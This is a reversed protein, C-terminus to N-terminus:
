AGVPDRVALRFAVTTGTADEHVTFDDSVARMLPLGRGRDGPDAPPPRWRGGDRVEIRLGDEDPTVAVRVVGGPGRGAYAHEVSNACAEGVALLLDTRITGPLDRGALWARLAARMPALEAPDAPFVRVFAGAPVPSYRLCLVVADDDRGPGDALAAMVAECVEAPPARHHARVAEELALFGEELPRRRREVLGDSYLVVLAGPELTVEDEPRSAVELACLPMSRGGELRRLHGDPDVVIPPPHGATAYRLTGADTDVIGYAVTAFSAEGPGKAFDDLLALLSGPGDAHPALARLAIRLGSMDAAAELGHGVVDGVAVGLCGGGLDVVDYWDGGVQLTDDAPAYRAAVEIGPHEAIADPLLARQLRLAIARETEQVRAANLLLAARGALDEVFAADDGDYPRRDPDSLWLRLVADGGGLHLPVVIRSSPALRALAPPDGPSGLDGALARVADTLDPDRHVAALVRADDDATLTAFDALRPVLLSVLRGARARVGDVSELEGVVQAVLEARSRARREARESARLAEEERRRRTIDKFVLAFRGRPPVPTAFVDFWRGMAESGSEFRTAEGGLAIGAYTEIWSRELDPVLELATRGEADRLGTMDEFGPNVEIFRYDAPRGDADTILECLCYGEDISTFIARLRAESERQAEEAAMREHVDIVSGVYGLFSGDAGHRPRGADVCWRYEGGARHLRYVLSFPERREAHAIFEGVADTVDEPHVAEEWAHDTSGTDRQGTYEFWGRSLFTCRNGADTLWLMAPAADAIERSREATAWGLAAREREHVEAAVGLASIIVIALTVQLYLLGQSVSVDLTDWYRHGGATAQAAVFAVAAGTIAVARTGVRFGSAILLTVPVFVLWVLDHWFLGYTAACAAVLIAAAEPLRPGRGVGAAPARLALIAGGVVLVGLGDGVWWEGAFRWWGEGDALAVFTTAGLAGGIAPAIVVGCVIFALLDSTRSIDARPRVTTLILAGVLPQATNAVGWGLAPLLDIDHGLDVLVETLGAALIVVWWDRRRTLVLAAFTVGAAPFFSANTGDAGFWSFAIESAVAYGAAVAVFLLAQRRIRSADM